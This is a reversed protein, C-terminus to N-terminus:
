NQISGTQDNELSVDGKRGIVKDKTASQASLEIQEAMILPNPNM